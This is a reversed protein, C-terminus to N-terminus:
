DHNRKVNEREKKVINEEDKGYKLRSNQRVHRFNNEKPGERKNKISKFIKL